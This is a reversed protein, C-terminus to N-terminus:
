LKRANECSTEHCFLRNVRFWATDQNPGAHPIVSRGFLVVTSIVLRKWHDFTHLYTKQARLTHM